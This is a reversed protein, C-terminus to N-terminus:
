EEPDAFAFGENKSDLGKNNLVDIRHGEFVAIIISNEREEYMTRAAFAALEPGSMGGQCTNVEVWEVYTADDSTSQPYQPRLDDVHLGVVTYKM